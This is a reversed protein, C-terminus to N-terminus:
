MGIFSSLSIYITKLIYSQSYENQFLIDWGKTDGFERTVWLIIVIIFIVAVCYESWRFM